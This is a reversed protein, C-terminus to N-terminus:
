EEVGFCEDYDTCVGCSPARCVYIGERECLQKYIFKKWKMDHRNCAALQPFNTSMLSSLQARGQLGLDQWLHNAGRCADVVISSIWAESLDVGAQEANLLQLLDDREPFDSIVPIESDDGLDAQQCHPFYRQCLHRYEAISLGLRTPLCGIGFERSAIMSAFLEENPLGASGALIAVVRDDRLSFNDTLAHM